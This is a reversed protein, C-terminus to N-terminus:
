EIASGIDALKVVFRYFVVHVGQGDGVMAVHKADKL